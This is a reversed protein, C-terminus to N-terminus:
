EVIILDGNEMDKLLPFIWENEPDEDYKITFETRSKNQTVKFVKVVTGAFWEIVRTEPDRCKHKVSKGELSHPNELFTPLLNKQQLIINKKRGEEVRSQLQSKLNTVAEAVEEQPKYILKPQDDDVLEVDNLAM